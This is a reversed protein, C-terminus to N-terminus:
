GEEKLGRGRYDKGLLGSGGRREGVLGRTNGHVLGAILFKGSGQGLGAISEGCEVELGGCGHGLEASSEKYGQV